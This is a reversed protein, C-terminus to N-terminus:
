VFSESVTSVMAEYARWDPGANLIKAVVIAEFDYLEIEEGRRLNVIRKVVASASLWIADQNQLM